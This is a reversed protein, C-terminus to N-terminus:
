AASGRVTEPDDDGPHVPAGPPTTVAGVGEARARGVLHARFGASCSAAHHSDRAGTAGHSNERVNQQKAADAAKLFVTRVLVGGYPPPADLSGGERVPTTRQWRM